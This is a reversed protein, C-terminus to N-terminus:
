SIRKIRISSYDSDPKRDNLDYGDLSSISNHSETLRLSTQRCLLYSLFSSKRDRDVMKSCGGGDDKHRSKQSLQLPWERLVFYVM